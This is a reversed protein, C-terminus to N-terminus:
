KIKFKISTNSYHKLLMMLRIIIDMINSSEMKMGCSLFKQMQHVKSQNKKVEKCITEEMQKVVLKEWDKYSMEGTILKKILDNGKYDYLAM